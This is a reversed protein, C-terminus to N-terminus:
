GPFIEHPDQSRLSYKMRIKLDRGPGKSDMQDRGPGKSDIQDRGPGKSDMQDRGPGKSDMQDRGPGKSDMQDRGPGKSDMEELVAWAHIGKAEYTDVAHYGDHATPQSFEDHSPDSGSGQKRQTDGRGNTSAVKTTTM